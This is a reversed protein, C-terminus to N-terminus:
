LPGRPLYGAEHLWRAARPLGEAIPTSCAGPLHAQLREVAALRRVVRDWPRRPGVTLRDAPADFLALIREALELIPTEVGTGVNVVDGATTEARVLVEVVDDVFTFDRTAGAGTIDIRRRPGNLAAIMNPIANRYPGPPDGPGYVNFLRLVAHPLGSAQVYQEGLHKSTAYPTTPALPGDERHPVPADGYSSSSGTYVFLGCGAARAHALVHLTGVANTRLDLEPDEISRANAFSAALHYVRDWPGAPLRALDEPCRIDCWCFRAGACLADAILATSGHMSLNDAVVVSHGDSALRRVLNSGIFGAGGTVLIRM